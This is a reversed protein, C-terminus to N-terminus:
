FNMALIAQDIRSPETRAYHRRTTSIDAHRLAGSVTDLPIGENLAASAWGRRLAHPTLLSNKGGVSDAQDPKSVLAIGARVGRRKIMKTISTPHTRKGGSTLFVYATSEDALAMAIKKNTLAEREMHHRYKRLLRSVAPHLVATHAGGGKTNFIRWTSAELDLDRWRAHVFAARREATYTMWHALLTEAPSGSCSLFREIEGKSPIFQYEQKLKPSKLGRAPDHDPLDEEFLFHHYLFRISAMYAKRTSAAWGAESGRGNPYGRSRCWSCGLRSQDPEPAGKGELHNMFRRTDARTASYFDRDSVSSLYDSLHHLNARYKDLTKKDSIERYNTAIAEEILTADPVNLRLGGRHVGMALEIARLTEEATQTIPSATDM